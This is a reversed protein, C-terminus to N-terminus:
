IDKCDLYYDWGAIDFFHQCTKPNWRPFIPFCHKNEHKIFKDVIVGNKVVLAERNVVSHEKHFLDLDKRANIDM